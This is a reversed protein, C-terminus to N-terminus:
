PRCAGNAAECLPCTAMLAYTGGLGQARYTALYAMGKKRREEMERAWEAREESGLQLAEMRAVMWGQVLATIARQRGAVDTGTLERALEPALGGGFTDRGGKDGYFRPRARYSRFADYAPMCVPCAYVFNAPYHTTPDIAIVADVVDNAVGDRYLGELVAFFIERDFRTGHADGESSAAPPSVAPAVCSALALMLANSRRIM